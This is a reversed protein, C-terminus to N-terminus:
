QMAQLLQPPLSTTDMANDEPAGIRSGWLVELDPRQEMIDAAISQWDAHDQATNKVNGAIELKQLSPLWRTERPKCLHRYIADFDENSLSTCSVDLRRLSHSAATCASAHQELLEGIAKLDNGALVLAHAPTKSLLQMASTATLKNQSLDVVLSSLTDASSAQFWDALLAADDDGLSNGGLRLDILRSAAPIRADRLANLTIQGSANNVCWFSALSTTRLCNAVCSSLISQVSTTPNTAMDCMKLTELTAHEALAKSLPILEPCILGGSIDLYNLYVKSSQCLHLLASFGTADINCHALELKALKISVNAHSLPELIRSLIGEELPNRSLNLHRLSSHHVLAEGLSALNRKGEETNDKGIGKNELNLDKLGQNQALGAILLQFSESSEGKGLTDDGIDIKELTTNMRLAEGLANAAEATLRHGSCYLERLTTNSGLAQFLDIFDSTSLRRFSFIHLSTFTPDNEKLRKVWASAGPTGGWAM